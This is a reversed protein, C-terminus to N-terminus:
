EMIIRSVSVFAAPFYIFRTIDKGKETAFIKLNTSRFNDIGEGVSDQAKIIVPIVFTASNRGKMFPGFNIAKLLGYNPFIRYALSDTTTISLVESSGDADKEVEVLFAVGFLMTSDPTLELIRDNNYIEGIHKLVELQRPTQGLCEKGYYLLVLVVLLCKVLQM